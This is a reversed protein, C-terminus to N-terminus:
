TSRPGPQLPLCRGGTAGANVQLDAAQLIEQATGLATAFQGSAVALEIEVRAHPLHTQESYSTRALLETASALSRAATGLDARALALEGAVETTM